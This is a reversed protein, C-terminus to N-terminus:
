VSGGNRRLERADAEFAHHRVDEDDRDVGWCEVSDVVDMIVEMSIKFICDALDGGAVAQYHCNIPVGTSTRGVSRRRVQKATKRKPVAAVVSFSQHFNNREVSKYHPADM